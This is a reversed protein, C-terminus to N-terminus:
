MLGSIQLIRKAAADRSNNLSLVVDRFITEDIDGMFMKPEVTFVPESGGNGGSFFGGLNRMFRSFKEERVPRSAARTQSVDPSHKDNDQSIDGSDIEVGSETKGLMSVLQGTVFSGCRGLGVVIMPPYTADSQIKSPLMQPQVFYTSLVRGSTSVLKVAGRALLTGLEKFFQEETLTLPDVM